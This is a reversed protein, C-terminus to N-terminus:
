EFVQLEYGYGETLNFSIWSIRRNHHSIKFLSVWKVARKASLSIMSLLGMMIDIPNTNPKARPPKGIKLESNIVRARTTMIDRESQPILKLPRSTLSCKEVVLRARRRVNPRPVPEVM